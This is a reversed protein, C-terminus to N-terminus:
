GMAHNFQGWIMSPQWEPEPGRVMRPFSKWETWGLEALLRRGAENESLLGAWARGGAPTLHRHLDLLCAADEPRSAILAANGRVTPLLFGGHLRGDSEILWGGDAYREVLPRRDEGTALRDLTALADIDNPRVPRLTSGAPPTPATGLPEAGFMHYRTQERFGLRDYVPRGLETAVLVLSACGATELLTCAAETLARGLGHGRLEPVVFIVGVWGASGHIAALGTGVIRTGLVAVVPRCDPVAMAMRFFERRDGFGGALTTESVADLDAPTMGRIECGTIAM